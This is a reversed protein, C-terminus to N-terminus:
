RSKIKITGNYSIGNKNEIMVGYILNLRYSLGEAM